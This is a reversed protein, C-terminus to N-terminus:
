TNSSRLTDVILFTLILVSPYYYYFFSVRRPLFIWFLWLGLYLSVLWFPERAKDRFVRIISAIVAVLGTWLILPNGGLFVGRVKEPATGECDFAYWIPRSVLPWEYWKSEYFHPDNKATLGTLIDRHFRFFDYWHYPFGSM